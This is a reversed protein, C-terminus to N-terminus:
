GKKSVPSKLYVTYNATPKFYSLDGGLVGGVLENSFVIRSGRTPDLPNNITTRILQPIIRSEVRDNLFLEFGPFLTENITSTSTTVGSPRDINVIQYGYTVVGKLDNHIPFGFTLSGGTDARIYSIYDYRTKFVSFGLSIRRDMFYPDLIELSYNESRQGGQLSVSLTNGGGFLNKTSFVL